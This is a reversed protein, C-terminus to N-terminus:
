AHEISKKSHDIKAHPEHPQADYGFQVKDLRYGFGFHPLYTGEVMSVIEDFRDSWQNGQDFTAVPVFARLSYSYIFKKLPIGLELESYFMIEDLIQELKWGEVEDYTFTEKPTLNLNMQLPEGHHAQSIEEIPTQENIAIQTKLMSMFGYSTAVIPMHNSAGENHNASWELIFSVKSAHLEDEYVGKHDGPIYVGNIQRLERALRDVSWTYDLPM